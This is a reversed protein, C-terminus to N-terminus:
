PSSKEYNARINEMRARNVGLDSRGARSASRFHILRSADDFHFEVDDVYRFLLSTFEAHIYDGTETIIQARPMASLVKKLRAVSEEKSDLFRLPEIAHETDTARTSVCNPSNPCPSLKGDQIGLNDPKRSFISLVALGVVPVMLLCVAIILLWRILM